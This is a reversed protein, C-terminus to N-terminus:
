ELASNSGRRTAVALAVMILSVAEEVNRHVLEAPLRLVRYGLRGLDRDRRADATRRLEHSRDDVEVILMAGPAVFDAVYKGIPVQRRFAIGLRKGSLQRWLIQESETLNHRFFQARESLLAQFKLSQRSQARM